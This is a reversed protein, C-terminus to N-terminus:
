KIQISLTFSFAKKHSSSTIQGYFQGSYFVTYSNRRKVRTYIASYYIDDGKKLRKFLSIKSINAGFFNSILDAESPPLVKTELNGLAWTSEM